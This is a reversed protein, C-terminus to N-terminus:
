PAGTAAVTTEPPAESAAAPFAADLRAYEEPRFKAAVYRDTTTLKAHGLMDRVFVPDSTRAVISGAAHRLGHLKVPRLGAAACALKYRRRLASEDVRRGWVNAFVYDDPGVFEGRSALRRLTEVAPQALPVIRFRRGKPVGEVGASLGRRILLTRADLDVDDWRLTVAEGIRIGTYLLVRFMEADQADTRADLDDRERTRHAGAATVRALAEVEHAEFYDLAAPQPEPRKDTNLVPNSPLEYTDDRCAYRFMSALVQRHKNVNRTTLGQADLARLFTSVERTKVDHIPRDGLAALIRGATVRTGRKYPIGPERLIGAYDRLTAPKIQKVDRQWALWEAALDRVTVPRETAERERRARDDRHREAAEMVELARAHAAREDLWGQHPRGRRRTWGGERRVLWAKGLRRKLQEEGRRWKVEYHPDGGKGVRVILNYIRPM